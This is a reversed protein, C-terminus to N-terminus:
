PAGTENQRVIAVKVWGVTWQELVKTVLWENYGGDEDQLTITDGEKELSRVVGHSVGFLYASRMEGNQNIADVQHLGAFTNAQIQAWVQALEYAPVQNGPGDDAVSYGASSALVVLIDPTVAPIQGRVAGHLNV